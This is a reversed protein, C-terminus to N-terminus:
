VLIGINWVMEFINVGWEFIAIPGVNELGACAPQPRRSLGFRAISFNRNAFLRQVSVSKAVLPMFAFDVLTQMDTMRTVIWRTDIWVVQKKASRFVVMLIHVLLITAHIRRTMWAHRMVGSSEGVIVNSFDAFAKGIPLSIGLDALCVAASRVVNTKNNAALCPSMQLSVSLVTM